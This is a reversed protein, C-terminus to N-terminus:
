QISIRGSIWEVNVTFTQDDKSIDVSGGTSSGDPFFRINGQTNSVIESATTNVKVSLSNHLIKTRDKFKPLEVWYKKQTIDMSWVLSQQRMIALSRAHRLSSLVDRAATRLVPGDSMQMAVGGLLLGAIVLVLLVEVLSFGVQKM